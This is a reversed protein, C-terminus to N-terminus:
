RLTKAQLAEALKSKARRILRVLLGPVLKATGGLRATTHGAYASTTRSIVPVYGAWLIDHRAAAMGSAAKAM